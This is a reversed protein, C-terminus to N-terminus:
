LLILNITEKGTILKKEELSELIALESNDTNHIELKILTVLVGDKIEYASIDKWGNTEEFGDVDNLQKTVTYYIKRM